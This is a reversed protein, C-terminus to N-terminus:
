RCVGPGEPKTEYTRVAAPGGTGAEAGLSNPTEPSHADENQTAKFHPVESSQGSGGGPSGQPSVRNGM